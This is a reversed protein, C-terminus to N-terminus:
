ISKEFEFTHLTGNNIDRISQLDRPENLSNTAKIKLGLKIGTFLVIKFFPLNVHHRM